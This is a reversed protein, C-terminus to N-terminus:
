LIPRRSSAQLSVGTLFTNAVSRRAPCAYVGRTSSIMSKPREDHEDDRSREESAIRRGDSVARRADGAAPARGRREGGDGGLHERRSSRRERDDVTSRIVVTASITIRKSPPM